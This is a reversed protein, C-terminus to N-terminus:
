GLVRTESCVTGLRLLWIACVWPCLPPRQGVRLCGVQAKLMRLQHEDLGPSCVAGQLTGGPRVRMVTCTQSGVSHAPLPFLGHAELALAFPQASCM